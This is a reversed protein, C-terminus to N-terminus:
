LFVGLTDSPEPLKLAYQPYNLSATIALAGVNGSQVTRNYFNEPTEGPIFVPGRQIFEMPDIVGNIDLLSEAQALEDLLAKQEGLTTLYDNQLGLLRDAQWSQVAEGLGNAAKLLDDAWPAGKLSGAKVGMGVAVVAAALALYLAAEGGVQKVFLKFGEQIVLAKVIATIVVMAAASLGGVAFAATIAKWTSGATYFTIVVAAIVMLVKFASRQYWRVKQTVRSNFIFHLSTSYLKERETMSFTDSISKDIPVLFREDKWGAEVRHGEWIDYRMMPDDVEVQAYHSDSEQYQWVLRRTTVNRMVRKLTSGGGDGEFVWVSAPEQTVRAEDRRHYSGLAGIKGPYRRYRLGEYSIRVGFDADRIHIAQDGQSGPQLLFTKRFFHFLYKIAEPRTSTLPTGMWMVAQEITGVEPNKHIEAGLEAYDMGLYELMTQSAKYLPTDKEREHTMDRRKSRFFVFPFYTGQRDYRPDHIQEIAPYTGTGQAYSWYRYQRQSGTGWHYGVQFYATDLVSFPLSYTLSATRIEAGDQWEYEVRIGDERRGPVIEYPTQASFQGVLHNLPKSPSVGGSAPPGWSALTGPDANDATQQTYLATIDRLYVPVGKKKSLALLENTLSNYGQERALRERAYHSASLPGYYFYDVTIRKRQEAEIVGKVIAQGNTSALMAVDPLGLPYHDKAYAVMRDLKPVMGEIMGQLLEDKLDNNRLIARLVSQKLTEPLDDDEVVRLVTTDVTTKTKSKFPNLGM